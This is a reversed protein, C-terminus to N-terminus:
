DQEIKLQCDKSNFIGGRDALERQAVEVVEIWKHMLCPLRGSEQILVHNGRADLGHYNSMKANPLPAPESPSAM